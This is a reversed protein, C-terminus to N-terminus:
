HPPPGQQRRGPAGRGGARAAPPEEAPARASTLGREAADVAARRATVAEATDPTRDRLRALADAEHRAGGLLEEQEVLGDRLRALDRGRLQEPLAQVADGYEAEAAVTSRRARDAAEVHPLLAAAERAGALRRRRAAHDDRSEDLVELDARARAGRRQLEATRRGADLAARASGDRQRTLDVLTMVEAAHTELAEDARRVTALLREVTLEHLPAESAPLEADSEALLEELRLTHGDLASRLGSLAGQVEQRREVLHREVDVYDGVDF